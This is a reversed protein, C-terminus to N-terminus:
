SSRRAITLVRQCEKGGAQMKHRNCIYRAAAQYQVTMKCGCHGCYALGQLLAAGGRAVGRSRRREYEQYNDSLIAGIAAHAERDIYAPYKDPVVFQWQEPPPPHKRCPGGAASPQFRTRGYVFTGAYAPNHLRAAIAAATPRRWLVAGDDRGRERRPRLLGAATLERIVGHLSKVRLFTTFVLDIRERVEQDPHKVVRGALDRVLGVPLSQALEGRQAKNHLGATLRAKLAHLELESIL